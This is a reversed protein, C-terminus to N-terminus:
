NQKIPKIKRPVHRATPKTCRQQPHNSQAEEDFVLASIRITFYSRNQMEIKLHEVTEEDAMKVVQSISLQLTRAFFSNSHSRGETLPLCVENGLSSRERALGQVVERQRM